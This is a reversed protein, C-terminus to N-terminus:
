RICLIVAFTTTIVMLLIPCSRGASGSTTSPTWRWRWLLEGRRAKQLSSLRTIVRCALCICVYYSFCLSVQSISAVAGSKHLHRSSPTWTPGSNLLDRLYVVANIQWHTTPLEGRHIGVLIALHRSRRCALPAEASQDPNLDQSGHSKRLDRGQQHM